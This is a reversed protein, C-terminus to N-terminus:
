GSAIEDADIVQRALGYSFGARALSALDRQRREARADEDRFPGLRKRRAHAWAAVLDADPEADRVRALAEEIAERPVGKTRLRQAIARLPMGRRHLSQALGRAYAGDDVLGADIMRAVVVEIAADSDFDKDAGRARARMVKRRLVRRLNEVSSPFRRLYFVAANELGRESLRM